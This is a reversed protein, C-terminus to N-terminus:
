RLAVDEFVWETVDPEDIVGEGLHFHTMSDDIREFTVDYAEMSDNNQSERAAAERSSYPPFGKAIAPRFRVGAFPM